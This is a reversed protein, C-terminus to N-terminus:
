KKSVPIGIVNPQDNHFRPVSGGTTQGADVVLTHGTVYRAEDSALYTIALAQDDPTGAIGLPSGKAISRDTEAHQSPDGTVVYSTMATVTNGPAVCNVRIGYQALESAVSKTLGVVGHKSATYVHPGLGGMVGATSAISVIAGKRAPMMVRAAHKMGFFVGTLLVGITRNWSEASTDKISGIAGVIVANNIMCDLRGYTKVALDVSAAIDEERTVDTRIFIARPGLTDALAQGLDGQLDALVVYAGEDLFRKATGAGIGSAAGTIVAVKDKLRGTM